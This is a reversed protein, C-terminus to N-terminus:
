IKGEKRAQRLEAMHERVWRAADQSSQHQDAQRADTDSVRTQTAWETRLGECDRLLLDVAHKSRFYPAANSSVYWRAVHEVEHHRLRQCLRTFLANTKANRVPETGYRALYADAYADWARSGIPKGDVVLAPQRTKEGAPVILGQQRETMPLLDTNVLTPDATLPEATYPEATLPSDTLPAESVLYDNQDFVGGDGRGQCRRLYMTAELERVLAYVGDRGTPKSSGRTENVLAAISIKWNDPKGLLFVLLGRAAWSLRGDESIRKDLVYFKAIPRAARIISMARWAM